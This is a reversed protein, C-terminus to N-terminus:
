PRKIMLEKFQKMMVPDNKIGRNKALKWGYFGMNNTVKNKRFFFDYQKKLGDMPLVSGKDRDNYARMTIMVPYDRTKHRNFSDLLNQQRAGPVERVYAHLDLIDFCDECFCSEYEKDSLGNWSILIPHSGDSKKLFQAVEAQYSIPIVAKPSSPEDFPHWAFVAPHNKWMKVFAEADRRNFDMEGKKNKFFRGMTMVVGINFRNALDLYAQLNDKDWSILSFSQILNVGKEALFRMDDAGVDWQVQWMLVYQKANIPSESHSLPVDKLLALVFCLGVALCRATKLLNFM